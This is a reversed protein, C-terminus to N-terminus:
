GLGSILESTILPPKKVDVESTRWKPITSPIPNSFIADLDDETADDWFLIDDL